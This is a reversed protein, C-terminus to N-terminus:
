IEGIANNLQYEERFFDQTLTGSGSIGDEAVAALGIFM